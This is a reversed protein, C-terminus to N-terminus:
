VHTSSSSVQRGLCVCSVDALQPASAPAQYVREGRNLWHELEDFLTRPPGKPSLFHNPAGKFLFPPKIILVVCWFPVYPLGSRKPPGERVRSLHSKRVASTQRPKRSGRNQQSVVLRPFRIGKKM